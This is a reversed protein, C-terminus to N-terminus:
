GSPGRERPSAPILGECAEGLVRAEAKSLGSRGAEM